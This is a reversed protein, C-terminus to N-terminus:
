VRGVENVAKGIMEDFATVVKQNSEYARFATIMNVMEKVANVNSSELFGQLVEGDIGQRINANERSKYLNDGIKMLQRTDEFTVMKLVDVYEGEVYIEGNNRVEMGGDGIWIEGEEGLVRYGEKSTLYGQADIIFSGDRTYREEGNVSLTFFGEGKVAIDTPCDTEKFNGQTFSTVIENVGAGGNLTGIVKPGSYMRLKDVPQGDVLVVGNQDISMREIGNVRIRGNNGLIYNGSTTILYGGESVSLEASTSFSKGRPTDIIFYTGETEVRIRDGRNEVTVGKFPSINRDISGDNLRSILVELFPGTVILDKKYANTDVNAINNAMVDIRMIETAMSRASTYLGRIM